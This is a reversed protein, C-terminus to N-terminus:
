NIELEILNQDKTLVLLNKGVIWFQDVKLDGSVRWGTEYETQYVCVQGDKLYVLYGPFIYSAKKIQNSSRLYVEREERDLDLFVAENVRNTLLYKNGDIRSVSTLGVGLQQNDNNLLFYRDESDVLFVEQDVLDLSLQNIPTIVSEEQDLTKLKTTKKAIDKKEGEINIEVLNASKQKDIYYIRDTVQYSKINKLNLLKKTKQERLNILFLSNEKVALLHNKEGDIFKFNKFDRFRNKLNIVKKGSLLNVVLEQNVIVRSTEQNFVVSDIKEKSSYISRQKEPSLSFFVIENEDWLYGASGNEVMKVGNAASVLKQKPKKLFLKTNKVETALGPRAKIEVSFKQYGDKKLELRYDGPLIWRITAPTKRDLDKGDLFISAGAPQTSISLISTQDITRNQWDVKLGLSFLLVYGAVLTSVLIVLAVLTLWVRNKM